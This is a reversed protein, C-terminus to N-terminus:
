LRAIGFRLGGEPLAVLVAVANNLVHSLGHRPISPSRLRSIHVRLNVEADAVTVPEANGLVRLLSDRPEAPSSRETISDGM